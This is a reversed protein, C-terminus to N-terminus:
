TNSRIVYTACIIFGLYSKFINIMTMNGFSTFPSVDKSLVVSTVNVDKKLM